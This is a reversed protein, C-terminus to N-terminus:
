EWEQQRWNPTRLRDWLYRTCHHAWSFWRTQLGWGKRHTLICIRKRGILPGWARVPGLWQEKLIPQELDRSNYLRHSAPCDDTKSILGWSCDPFGLCAKRRHVFLQGTNSLSKGVEMLLFRLAAWIDGFLFSSLDANPQSTEWRHNVHFSYRKIELLCFM